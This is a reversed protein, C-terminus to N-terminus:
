RRDVRVFNSTEVVEFDGFRVMADDFFGNLGVNDAPCHPIVVISVQRRRAVENLAESTDVVWLTGCGADCIAEFVEPTPNWGGYFCAYVKGLPNHPDGVAITTGLGRDMMWQVEPWADCIDVLDGATRPQDERLIRYGDQYLYLDAPGHITMFPMNLAAAIQNFRFDTSRETMSGVWARILKDAVHEAVGFDTLMRVQAWLVDARSAVAGGQASAHHAVVLDVPRGHDKLRDALLLEAGDINIGCILRKVETEPDGCLMRTDGFPNHLREQEFLVKAKGTLGEFEQHLDALRQRLSTEGRPDMALGREIAFEYLDRVTM